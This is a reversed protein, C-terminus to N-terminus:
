WKDFRLEIIKNKENTYVFVRYAEGSTATMKGLLYSSGAKKSSGSHVPECSSPERTQFFTTLVKLAEDKSYINQDDLLCLDIFEDSNNLIQQIDKSEIYQFVENQSQAMVQLGIILLCIQLYRM